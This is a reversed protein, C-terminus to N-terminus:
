WDSAASVRRTRGRDYAPQSACWPRHADDLPTQDHRLPDKCRETHVDIRHAAPQARVAALVRDIVDLAADEGALHTHRAEQLHELPLVDPGRPEHRAMRRLRERILQL